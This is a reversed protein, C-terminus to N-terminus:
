SPRTAIRELAEVWARVSRVIRAHGALASTRTPYRDRVEGAPVTMTEFLIPPGETAHDVGLFVTSVTVGGVEDRAVLRRGSREMADYGDAWVLVDEIPVPDDNSDLLYVMARRSTM